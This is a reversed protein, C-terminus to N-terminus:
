CKATVDGGVMLDDCTDLVPASRHARAWEWGLAKIM